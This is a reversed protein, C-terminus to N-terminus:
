IMYGTFFEPYCCFIFNDPAYLQHVKHYDYSGKKYGNLIVYYIM